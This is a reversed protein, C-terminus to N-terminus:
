MSDLLGVWVSEGLGVARTGSLAPLLAGRVTQQFDTDDGLITRAARRVSFFCGRHSITQPAFASM